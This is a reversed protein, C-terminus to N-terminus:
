YYIGYKAATRKVDPGAIKDPTLGTRKQFEGVWAQTQPGDVGDVAILQGRRVKVSWRYSPFVRRLGAQLKRIQSKTLWDATTMGGSKAPAGPKPKPKTVQALWTVPNVFKAAVKVYFHLHAGFARGTAGAHGIVQGAKVRQGAKVSRRSLHSYGVLNSGDRIEIWTGANPHGSGTAVVGAMAAYVPTGTSARFDTGNHNPRSRTRYGSTVTLSELPNAYAM